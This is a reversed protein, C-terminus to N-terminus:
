STELNVKQKMSLATSTNGSQQQAQKQHQRNSTPENQIKAWKQLEHNQDRRGLKAKLALMQRAFHIENQYTGRWYTVGLCVSSSLIHLHVGCFVLTMFLAFNVKRPNRCRMAEGRTHREAFTM